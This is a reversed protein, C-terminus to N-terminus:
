PKDYGQEHLWELLDGGQNVQVPTSPYLAPQEIITGTGAPQGTNPYQPQVVTTVPSVDPKSMYHGLAVAVAAIPGAIATTLGAIAWGPIRNKVATIVPPAIVPPNVIAPTVVPVVASTTTTADDIYDGLVNREPQPGNIAHRTWTHLRQLWSRDLHEQGLVRLVPSKM